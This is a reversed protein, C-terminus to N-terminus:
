KRPRVGTFGFNFADPANGQGSRPTGKGKLKENVAKEVASQFATKVAEISKNCTEADAYNLIEALELPLGESALTDKATAKLERANLDALRKNYDDERKQREYEAKEDAKMNRLKEAETLADQIAQKQGAELKTKQTALAKQIRRDFEAQVSKDKLLDDFTPQKGQQGQDGEGGQDNTGQADTGTDTGTVQGNDGGEAFFQINLPFRRKQTTATEKKLIM